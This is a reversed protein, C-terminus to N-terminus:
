KISLEILYVKRPSLNIEIEKSPVFDVIPKVSNEDKLTVLTKDSNLGYDEPNIRTKITIPNTSDLNIYFIGVSEGRFSYSSTLITPVKIKGKRLRDGGEIFTNYHYYNLEISPIESTILPPQEMKGFVLYKKGFGLRAKAAENLFDIKDKDTHYPNKDVIWNTWYDYTVYNTSDTMEDFLEPASFEYNLEPIGGWLITRAVIYYFIDGFEKSLKLFGDLRVPGNEHYVYTFLPIMEIMGTPDGSWEFFGQEEAFGRAHYFDILDVFNEVILETGFPIFRSPNESRCTEKSKMVLSRYVDVMGRGIFSQHKHLIEKCEFPAANCISIDNYIGDCKIKDNCTLFKDRKTYFNIWIDEFPCMYESLNRRDKFFINTGREDFKQFYDNCKTSIFCDNKFLAFYDGSKHISAINKPNVYLVDLDQNGWDTNSTDNNEWDFALIHFIDTNINKNLKDIFISQDRRSSIGFTCLGVKNLLWNAPKPQEMDNKNKKSSWVPKINSERFVWDRYRKAGEYWDGNNLAGIIIPFDLTFEESGGQTLDWNKHLISLYLENRDFDKYFNLEKLTSLPDYAAFYFGGKDKTYYEILQMPSGHCGDPYESHAFKNIYERPNNRNFTKIPNRVLLGSGTPHVLIDSSGDGSLTSIGQLLPFTLSTIIYESQNLVKLKFTVDPNTKKVFVQCNIDIPLDKLKWILEYVETDISGELKKFTFSECDGWNKKGQFSLEWPPLLVEGKILEIGKVKNFLSQIAGKDNSLQIRLFDNEIILSNDQSYTFIPYIFLNFM